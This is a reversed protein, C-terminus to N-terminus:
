HLQRGSIHVAFSNISDKVCDNQTVPTLFAWSLMALFILKLFLHGNPKDYWHGIVLIYLDSIM